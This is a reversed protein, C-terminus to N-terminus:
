KKNHLNIENGGLYATEFCPKNYTNLTEFPTQHLHKPSEFQTKNYITQGKKSKSVTQAEKQFIPHNKRNTQDSHV